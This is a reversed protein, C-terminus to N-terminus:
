SVFGEPFIYTKGESLCKMFKPLDIEEISIDTVSFPMFMTPPFKDGYKQSLSYESDTTHCCDGGYMYFYEANEGCARGDCIYLKESMTIELIKLVAFFIFPETFSASGEM